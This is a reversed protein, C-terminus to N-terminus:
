AVDCSCAGSARGGLSELLVSATRRLVSGPRVDADNTSGPSVVGGVQESAGFAGLAYLGVALKVVLNGAAAVDRDERVGCASCTVHTWRLVGGLWGHLLQWM